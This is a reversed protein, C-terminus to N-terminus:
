QEIRETDANEEEAVSADIDPMRMEADEDQRALEVEVDPVIEDPMTDAVLYRSFGANKLLVATQAMEPIDGPKNRKHTIVIDSPVGVIGGNKSWLKNMLRLREMVGTDFDADASACVNEFDFL